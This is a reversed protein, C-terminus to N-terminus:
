LTRAYAVGRYTLDVIKPAGTVTARKAKLQYFIGRYQCSLATNYEEIFLSEVSYHHGRYTLEM